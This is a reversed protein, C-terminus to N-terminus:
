NSLAKRLLFKVKLIFVVLRVDLSGIKSFWTNILAKYDNFFMKYSLNHEYLNSRYHIQFDLLSGFYRKLLKNGEAEIAVSFSPNNNVLDFVRRVLLLRDNIKKNSIPSRSLSNKILNQSHLTKGIFACRKSSILVNYMFLMDENHNMGEDFTIENKNIVDMKIIHLWVCLAGIDSTNIFESFGNVIKECGADLTQRHSTTISNEILRAGFQIIDVNSDFLKSVEELCNPELLDDSDLFYAWKGKAVSLGTNRATSVGQNKQGITRIRGDQIAFQKCIQSSLDTSGDDVLILEFDKYSQALVSQIVQKLYKEANYIPIIISITSM